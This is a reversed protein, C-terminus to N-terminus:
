EIQYDNKIQMVKDGTRFLREGFHHEKKKPSPPNLREQLLKNLQEVGLAGKKMPCLVQIEEKSTGVYAPLKGEIFSVMQNIIVDPDSRRLFFFDKSKTDLNIQQGDNIQHANVIIDSGEEQRFIHKLRVLPFVDAAIMDRMVDGPGVSPLQDADGVMILRTGPVIAELLAGMLTIDVMSMEDVIIVDAELPNSADRGFIGQEDGGGTMGVELLRHITSAEYGTAETMRRAARGTPAALLFSMKAHEFYRLMENIATTKGTGPGGTVIVLGYRAAYSVAKLQEEDLELQRTKKLFAMEEEISQDDSNLTQSLDLLRRACKMELYYYYTTYVLRQEDMERLVIKHSINLESLAKEVAENEVGLVDCSLMKLRDEPLYVHGEAAAQSMVYMVGAQVRYESDHRIGIQRAIEDATRFGVGDVDSALQYPNEKLVSYLKQGYTKYIRISLNVSLGYRQLYIMASRMDEQEAVRGAIERARRESIGNIEVLREPEEKIIYLTDNGFAKVIRAALIKGIGKVAGSGLYREIAEADEPIKVEMAEAKFQRGYMPHSTYTGTLVVTEGENIYQFSGVVTLEEEDMILSFVTYGNDENRYVIHDIYGEIKEPNTETM